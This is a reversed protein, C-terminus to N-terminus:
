SVRFLCLWIQFVDVLSVHWCHACRSKELVTEVLHFFFHKIKVEGSVLLSEFDEVIM